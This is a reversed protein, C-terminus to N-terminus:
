KCCIDKYDKIRIVLDALESEIKEIESLRKKGEPGISEQFKTKFTKSLFSYFSDRLGTLLQKSEPSVEKLEKLREQLKILKPELAMKLDREVGQFVKEGPTKLVEMWVTKAAKGFNADIASLSIRVDVLKRAAPNDSTITNTPDDIIERMIDELKSVIHSLTQAHRYSEFIQKTQSKLAKVAGKKKNASSM